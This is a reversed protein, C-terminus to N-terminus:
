YELTMTVNDTEELDFTLIAFVKTCIPDSEFRAPIFSAELVANLSSEDAGGGIGKDVFAQRAMGSTDIEFRVIVTGEIGARNAMEPYYTAYEKQTTEDIFTPTATVKEIQNSASCGELEFIKPTNESNCASLLYIFGSVVLVKIAFTPFHIQRIAKM